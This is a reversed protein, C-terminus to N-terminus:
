EMVPRTDPFDSTSPWDRLKIRYALYKDRDPWDPTQAIKDTGRLEDNRWIRADRAKSVDTIVPDKIVLECYYVEIKPYAKEAFEMDSIIFNSVGDKTVKITM